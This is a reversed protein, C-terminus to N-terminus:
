FHYSSRASLLLIKNASVSLFSCLHYLSSANNVILIQLTNALTNGNKLDKVPTFINKCILFM